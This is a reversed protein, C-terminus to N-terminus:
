FDFSNPDWPLRAEDLGLLGLFQRLHTGVPLIKAMHPFNVADLLVSFLDSLDTHSLALVELGEFGELLPNEFQGKERATKWSKLFCAYKSRDSQQERIKLDIALSQLQVVRRYGSLDRLLNRNMKVRLDVIEILKRMGLDNINFFSANGGALMQIMFNRVGNDWQSLLALVDLTTYEKTIDCHLHFCGEQALM